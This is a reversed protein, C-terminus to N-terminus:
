KGLDTRKPATSSGRFGRPGWVSVAGERGGDLQVPTPRRSRGVEKFGAPSTQALASPRASAGGGSSPYRRLSDSLRVCGSLPLTPQPEAVAAPSPWSEEPLCNQPLPRALGQFASPRSLRSRLGTPPAPLLNPHRTHIRSKGCRRGGSQAPTPSGPGTLGSGFNFFFFFVEIFFSLQSLNPGFKIRPPLSHALRWQTTARPRSCANAEGNPYLGVPNGQQRHSTTTIWDGNM